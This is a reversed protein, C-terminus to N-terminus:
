GNGGKPDLIERLKLSIAGIDYPKQIFGNCGKALLDRAQHNLSFGSSLLVKVHPDMEKLRSYTEGGSMGPMLMDLLVLAIERGHQKYLLVAAEGSGVAIVKYGLRKLMRSCASVVMEEDDVILVTEMGGRPPVPTAEREKAVAGKGLAPLVIFFASGKEKESTVRIMGGHSKVIGYVSSLGLGTGVGPKKTTFFPDFIKAMTAKDMGCGSDKVTVQVYEGPLIDYGRVDEENLSVNRTRVHITGGTAPMAQAANVYLNMLVQQIQGQDVNALWLDEEFQEEIRIEKKAEGFLKDENRILENLDTPQVNYTGGRAYGLLNRTLMGAKKVSQDIHTLQEFDPDSPTRGMLMASVYGQISMLINNFNHAVGGALVGIAEMKQAQQLQAEMVKQRTIDTCAGIWKWPRGNTDTLPVSHDKWYRWEGSKHRIRYERLLPHTCTHRLAGMEQFGQADEPHILALWGELTNGAGEPGYGLKEEIDGFWKVRGDNVLWEYILDFSAAVAVKLREESERLAAVAQRLGTEDIVIGEVIEGSGMRHRRAWVRANFIDGNQRRLDVAVGDVHGRADLDSIVTKEQDANAYPLGATQWADKEEKFGFMGMFSPNMMLFRSNEGTTRQYSGVPLNDIFSRYREESAKIQKDRDKTQLDVIYGLFLTIMLIFPLRLTYSVASPGQLLGEQYLLWGYVLVFLFGAIILNKLNSGLTALCIILFFVLYLDTSAMGALYIGAVVMVSDFLVIGYFIAPREFFPEPLMSIVLNSLLYLGIFGYVSFNAEGAGPALLMLYSLSIIVLLRILFILRKRTLEM